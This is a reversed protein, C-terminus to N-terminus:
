ALGLARAEHPIMPDTGVMTSQYSADVKTLLCLGMLLYKINKKM